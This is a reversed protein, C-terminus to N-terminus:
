FIGKLVNIKQRKIVLLVAIIKQPFLLNTSSPSNPTKQTFVHRFILAVSPSKETNCRM